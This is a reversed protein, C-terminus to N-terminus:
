GRIERIARIPNRKEARRSDSATVERVFLRESLLVAHRPYRPRGAQRIECGASYVRAGSALLVRTSMRRTSRPVRRVAPPVGVRGPAHGEAEERMPHIAFFPTPRNAPQRVGADPYDTDDTTLIQTKMM